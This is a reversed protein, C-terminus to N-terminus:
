ASFGASAWLPGGGGGALPQAAGWLLMQIALALAFV